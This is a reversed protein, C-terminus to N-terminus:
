ATKPSLNNVVAFTVGAGVAAGALATAYVLLSGNGQTAIAGLIGGVIEGGFWMAVLMAKYGKAGYGKLACTAGIKKTLFIVLLIELM